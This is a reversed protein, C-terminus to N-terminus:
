QDIRKSYDNINEKNNINTKIQTRRMRNSFSNKKIEIVPQLFDPGFFIAQTLIGKTAQFM